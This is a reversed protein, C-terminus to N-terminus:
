ELCGLGHCLILCQWPGGLWVSNAKTNEDLPQIMTHNEAYQTPLCSFASTATCGFIQWLSYAGNSNACELLKPATGLKNNCWHRLKSLTTVSLVYRCMGNWLMNAYKTVLCSFASTVACGFLQWLSYAGNSAWIWKCPLHWALTTRHQSLICNQAVSHRCSLIVRQELRDTGGAPPLELRCPLIQAQHISCYM